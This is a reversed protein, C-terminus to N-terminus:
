WVNPVLEALGPFGAKLSYLPGMPLPLVNGSSGYANTYSPTLTKDPDSPLIRVNTLTIDRCPVTTSCGVTIGDTGNCSARINNYSIDQIAVANDQPVCKSADVNKTDCYFQNIVIPYTVDTMQVNDYSVNSVMGVGGQYTKIRLGNNSGRFTVDRITVGQICGLAGEAGLSGISIGHGNICTVNQVLVNRTMGVIGVGDDGSELRSDKIVVNSSSSISISDTNPSNWPALTRVGRIMVGTSTKVKMHIKGPNRYTIGSVLLNRCDSFHMLMPRKGKGWWARGAGDLYGKGAVVLNDIGDFGLMAWTKSSEPEPYAATNFFAQIAGDIRVILGAGCPGQIEMPFIRFVANGPVHVMARQRTRAGYGCAAAFARRFPGSADAWGNTQAGFRTVSFYGPGGMTRKFESGSAGGNAVSGAGGSLSAQPTGEGDKAMGAMGSGVQARAKMGDGAGVASKMGGNGGNGTRGSEGGGVGEHQKVWAQGGGSFTNGGGGGGSGSGSGAGGNAGVAEEGGPFFSGLSRAHLAGSTSWEGGSKRFAAARKEATSASAAATAAVHLPAAQSNQQPSTVDGAIVTHACAPASFLCRPFPACPWAPDELTAGAIEAKIAGSQAITFSSGNWDCEDRTRLDGDGCGGAHVIACTDDVAFRCDGTRRRKGTAPRWADAATFRFGRTRTAQEVLVFQGRAAEFVCADRVPLLECGAAGGDREEQARQEQQQRWLAEEQTEGVAMREDEEEEAAGEAVLIGGGTTSGAIKGQTM